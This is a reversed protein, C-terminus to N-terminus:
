MPVRLLLVGQLLEHSLNHGIFLGALFELLFTLVGEVLAILFLLSEKALRFPKLENSDLTLVVLLTSQGRKGLALLAGLLHPSNALKGLLTAHSELIQVGLHLVVTNEELGLELSTLLSPTYKQVNEM